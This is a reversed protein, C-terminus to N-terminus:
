MYIFHCKDFWHENGFNDVIAIDEIYPEGVKKIPPQVWCEISVEVMARPTIIYGAPAMRSRALIVHITARIKKKRGILAGSLAINETDTINTILFDAIVQMTDKGKIGDKGMHWWCSNPRNVNTITITRYPHSPLYFYYKKRGWSIFKAVPSVINKLLEIIWSVNM